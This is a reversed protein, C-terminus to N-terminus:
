SAPGEYTEIIDLDAKIRKAVSAECNPSQYAATLAAIIVPLSAITFENGAKLNRVFRAADHMTNRCELRTLAM